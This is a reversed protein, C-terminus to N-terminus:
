PEHFKNFATAKRIRKGNQSSVCNSRGQNRCVVVKELYSPTKM